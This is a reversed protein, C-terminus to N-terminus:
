QALNYGHDISVRRSIRETRFGQFGFLTRKAITKRGSQGKANMAREGPKMPCSCFLFVPVNVKDHNPSSEHLRRQSVDFEAGSPSRPSKWDSKRREHLEIPTMPDAIRDPLPETLLVAEQKFGELHKMM